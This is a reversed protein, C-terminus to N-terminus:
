KGAIAKTSRAPGFTPWRRAPIWPRVDLIAQLSGLNEDDTERKMRLAILYVAAQVPDVRRGLILRMTDRAEEFAIDKSYEPGTAVKQICANILTYTNDTPSESDAIM